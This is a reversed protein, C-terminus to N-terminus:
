KTENTFYYPRILKDTIYIYEVFDKVKRTDRFENNELEIMEPLSLLIFLLEKENDLLEFLQLYRELISSFDYKLCEKKYLHVFDLIPTDIKYDDWSIFVSKDKNYIFHEISLKNHIISVREKNSNIVSEYWSNLKESVFNLNANIKYYNRLFLYKSPSIYEDKLFLMFLADFNTKMYNINNDILEKIEKYNDISINKYYVTKNHLSAMIAILDSLKQENPLIDENIYEFVNEKNQYNSIIKPFNYFNRSELYNFLSLIDKNQKKLVFKGSSSEIITVNSLKTYRYPKYKSKLIEISSM